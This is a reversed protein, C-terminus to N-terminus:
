TYEEQRPLDGFYKQLCSIDQNGVKAFNEQFVVLELQDLLQLNGIWKKELELLFQLTSAWQFALQTYEEQMPHGEFYKHLCSIDLIEVIAFSFYSSHSQFM